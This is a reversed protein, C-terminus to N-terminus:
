AVANQIFYGVDQASILERVREGTRIRFGGQLGIDAVPMARLSAWMGGGKLFDAPLGAPVPVPM